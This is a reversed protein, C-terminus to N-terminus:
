DQLHSWRAPSRSRRVGCRRQPRCGGDRVARARELHEGIALVPRVPCRRSASSRSHRGSADAPRGAASARRNAFLGVAAGRPSEGGFELPAVAQRHDQDVFTMLERSAACRKASRRALPAARRLCAAASSATAASIMTSRQSSAHRFGVRCNSASAAIRCRRAAADDASAPPGAVRACRSRQEVAGLRHALCAAVARPREVQEGAARHDVQEEFRRRARAGREIQGRLPEARLHDVEVDGTRRRDLAFGQEIRHVREFRHM